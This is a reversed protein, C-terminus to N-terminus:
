WLGDSIQRMVGHGRHSGSHVVRGLLDHAGQVAAAHVDIAAAGEDLDQAVRCLGLVRVGVRGRFAYAAPSHWAVDSAVEVRHATARVREAEQRVRAALARLQGPDGM